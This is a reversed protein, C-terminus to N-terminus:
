YLRKHEAEMKLMKTRCKEILYDIKHLVDHTYRAQNSQKTMSGLQGLQQASDL